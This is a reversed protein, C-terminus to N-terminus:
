RSPTVPMGAAAPTAPVPRPPLMPIDNIPVLQSPVPQIEKIGARM